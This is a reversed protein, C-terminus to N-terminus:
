ALQPSGAAASAPLRVFFTTGKGVESEFWINGNHKKVITAHALALGQGTGKGVDKTTFFPEFIHPRVAPLIGCGTDQISIEVSNPERVTRITIKGRAKSGDGVVEEIAHAANVLLNLIVQNIEGRHCPVLGVEPSLVTEVDAVYKWENRAVTLTTEIAHNIDTPQKEESGPHSFEKMARVIKSVREVGDLSQEIAAPVENQLDRLDDIDYGAPLECFSGGGGPEHRSCFLSILGDMTTWTQQLFRTNDGIFQMPTNIEHAIGAALQGIAELKQARELQSQMIRRETIDEKLALFHSVEWNEDRIPTILAYEWYLDGNKKRNHFEGRWERGSTIADWLHKYEERSTHGSKLFRPNKGIVEAFSYGTCEVFKRNVYVIRGALDTMMVSVPSQEVALSLQRVKSENRKRETIDRFVWIRGYYKGDNGLVPASYRDLVMGDRFTIEDRSIEDQHNNLHEVQRRFREPDAIRSTVHNLTAQDDDNQVLNPPLQMIETFRRNQLIKRANSDVVLIGDVTSDAQAELFANKERLQEEAAQREAVEVKLSRQSTELAVTRQLVKLELEENLHRTDHEATERRRIEVMIKGAVSGAIALALLVAATLLYLMKKRAAAYLLGSEELRQNMEEAQFRSFESWALNYRLMLPSTNEILWKRAAKRDNQKMLLATAHRYSAVYSKRSDIVADLLDQEKKSGIRTKLRELVLGIQVSNSARDALLSDVASRDDVVVLEMNIHSNRNSYELAQDALEVDKWETESISREDVALNQMGNLGLTGVGVVISILALVAIALGVGILRESMRVEAKSQLM